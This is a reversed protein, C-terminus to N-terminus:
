DKLIHINAEKISGTKFFFFKDLYTLAKCAVLGYYTDLLTCKKGDKLDKWIIPLEETTMESSTFIFKYCCNNYRIHKEGSFRASHSPVVGAKKACLGVFVDHPVQLHMGTSAVFVKRAVDQSIVFATGVCYDPFYKDAYQGTSLFAKSRPNRNPLEQHVVRGIYLDEPHRRLSLLYEALSAYNVFMNEDSKLIFRAFPCFTVTWQMVLVTKLTQNNPSDIFKGQIIDGHEISEELVEAETARSEGLVFLSRVSLGQVGTLNAWTRRIEDRRTRNEPTSFIMALLFIDMGSCATPNSITYYTSVNNKVASMDLKRARERIELVKVDTFTGPSAQLLYEEVFDAGFLLAHFLIINFLLFCWQHTRLRCFSCQLSLPSQNFCKLLAFDPSLLSVCSM